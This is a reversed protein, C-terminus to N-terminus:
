WVSPASKGYNAALLQLDLVNIIGDNNLDAATPTSNNYNMGLTLVDTNDIHDDANVDGALLSINPMTVTGGATITISARVAKLFGPATASIAYTGAPATLNFTGNANAVISKTVAGTLTITVPKTALVTGTVAGDTVPTTITISIPAFPIVFLGGGTSARVQCDFTFTGPVLGKMNFRLATGSGTTKNNNIGAIAYIFTGGTPGVINALAGTGFLGADTLGSIEVITPDYYCGFEASTLGGSPLNNLDIAYSITSNVTIAPASVSMKNAPTDLHIIATPGTDQQSTAALASTQSFFLSITLFFLSILRSLNRLKMIKIEEIFAESAHPQQIWGM